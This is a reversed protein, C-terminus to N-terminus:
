RHMDASYFCFSLSSCSMYLFSALFFPSTSTSSGLSRVSREVTCVGIPPNNSDGLTCSISVTISTYKIVFHTGKVPIWHSKIYNVITTQM